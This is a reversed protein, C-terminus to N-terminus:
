SSSIEETVYCIEHLSVAGIGSMAFAGRARFSFHPPLENHVADRLAESVFIQGGGAAGMIRATMNTDHGRYTLRNRDRAIFPEGVHIGIRLRLNGIGAPWIHTEMARQTTAAFRVADSARAFVVFMSDGATEVEFGNCTRVAARLLDFHEDRAQEFRAGHQQALSSSNEMDTFVLAVKGTPAGDASVQESVYQDLVNKLRAREREETTGREIVTGLAMAMAAVSPMVIPILLGSDTFLWLAALFYGGIVAATSAAAVFWRCRLALHCALAMLVILSLAGTWAPAPRLFSRELLTAIANGHIELGSMRGVPTSYSDRSLTTTDGILVIKNRFFNSQRFMADRAIGRYVQEYPVSPLAEDKTGLFSVRFTGDAETPILWQGIRCGDSQQTLPAQALGLALRVTEVSLAPINTGNAPITAEFRDVVVDSGHPSRTHGVHSSAARLRNNPLLLKQEAEDWLGAWV